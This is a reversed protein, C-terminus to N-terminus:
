CMYSFSEQFVMLPSPITKRGWKICSKQLFNNRMSYEIFQGFKMTQNDKSQSINPLPTNYNNTLWATVHYIKFNVKRILNNRTSHFALVFIYIDQFRFSNKLHFLFCKEDKQFAKWQLLYFLKKSLHSGSKWFIM